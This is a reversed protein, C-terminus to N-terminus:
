LVHVRHCGHCLLNGGFDNPIAGMSVIGLVSIFPGFSCLIQKTNDVTM